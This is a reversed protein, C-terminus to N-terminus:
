APVKLNKIANFESLLMVEDPSVPALQAMARAEDYTIGLRKLRNNIFAGEGATVNRDGDTPAAPAEPMLPHEKVPVDTIDQPPVAKAQPMVVAPKQGTPEPPTGGTLEIGEGGVTNLYHVARELRETKPWYKYAQKICTKKIMESEDSNWPCKKSNDACFAKWAESRDRISYVDNISMCHTLYDGDVTKVVVFTGVIQGRDSAFPNHDHTPPKDYGHLKFGDNAYVVAAQAWRISGTSLAMDILGMYSIDLCVKGKRPVLYCQKRAPNLTLGIASVNTVADKFSQLSNAAIGQLYTNSCIIQLVFEAEREFVINKDVSVSNFTTQLGEIAQEILAINSM